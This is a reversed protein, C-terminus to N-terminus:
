KLARSIDELPILVDFKLGGENSDLGILQYKLIEKELTNEEFLDM